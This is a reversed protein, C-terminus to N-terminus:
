DKVCRVSLGYHKVDDHNRNVGASDYYLGRTWVGSSGSGTASWFIAGYTFNAYSGYYDGAPLASFGSSNRGAASTNGAANATSSFTWGTNGSLQAAISGRFCDTNNADSQSMGVSMEMQKWEADSPVHWGTPCVGQVGSPNANSSSSSGMVAKWNYLLGYTSMNSSNNNPCYWYATTTSTSNGHLISTGNAYKTTRLNEKMWCQSGIQVTNYTNGDIDTLTSTGCTFSPASSTTFSVESGYATGASNTAYARVYYTTNPTLGTVSSTFSGTGSGNTTHSGSVTPNNSTSWCVGRATITAGGDSTVNGGCTATTTSISTVSNTTVTPVTQSSSGEDRVCRVSYGYEKGNYGRRVGANNYDLYRQWANTSSNETASWFSAYNGFNNYNGIYYGAPLASFGSSNREAASTNGAANANSSSTWGANGCLRAAIDGRYGTNDADSQSMGVEMEMQKWEADSPVHWGIPCIGQVGSPNASSSSSSGMVAKWNYLLGYTTNNSADDNPYYWYATTTSTETGQAILSNDAYKMTRLNEKMWCQNGILVTNYTNGDIDILTTSGPCPQGNQATEDKVCRVSFGRSKSDYLRTAGANGYYLSRRWADTSSGETASWFYACDGFGNYSGYYYGAPLASFGTANNDSPTNGVACTNTNSSWGTTDALAKAISANDSGCVYQSQSSVYDTLQTWEADSPVHWGIPCIGQVGSPNASSSSSSGMVAKWNYLLGYTSMNSSNNNPYYWYATTTSTNNGQSISTGNAYKTTRLNEKMWCQNGIQVTNYTNGDIDTLTSTGCTFSPASSTTFSVESGYATGASNTAYARVYYTTNPTLGTVSSTFSGTGSGNTTHSGSVTPNHVTSWCVGRATVTAGGDSTVNGGCTATATSISTVSNTTVIPITPSSNGEDYVCRISFAREKQTITILISSSVATIGSYYACCDDVDATASWFDNSYGFATYSSSNDEYNYYYSGAPLASFGTANNGDPSYGVSCLSSYYDNWGTSAALAKAITRTDTSDCVYSRQSRVYNILQIWEDRSPVHWGTPCDGQVGSPNASSSSSSGMVAKWNYLLGYTSMNSSNNNPYYWYATTTSTSNGHAISTGNAYKTTRLNEAMWCQSGIQVTNYTNGAIDTVTEYGPCPQADGVPLPPTIFSVENGYATGVSNTAYARVYYTTNPTLGTLIGRFNYTNITDTTHPNAITPNGTTNWCVGGVTVVAGGDSTVNGSGRAYTSGLVLVANTTVTPLQETYLEGAGLVCRVSMAYAYIDHNLSIVAGEENIYRNYGGSSWFGTENRFAYYGDISNRQAYYGAPLAGFGTANNTSLDSCVSCNYYSCTNWGTTAALAKAIYHNYSGCVYQSQSSVYDTLQTWEAHSPVHWGTPCIGQVGSPNASSYPARHMVATWNYLLGYTLKNGADDNPYYWYPTDSSPSNGQAVYTNDAYKTTRLNEAMWCQQGIQVTNYTNGDIDTVTEHGRCPQADGAPLTTFSVEEGYATGVSNTAYARVYYTTNPTLNTLNSTFSGTGSGNTTHNGSTTPNHNNSWCVGRDIVIADGDSTVIGGVTASNDSINTVPNTTVTPITHQVAAFVMAFTQSTGQSQTIRQSEMESDNITAYGVYEMQDGFTFPNNTTSKLVYTITQVMGLYDIGNANGGDHCVMKISSTKGNQRATMVYTGATSLSVRFQHTGIEPHVRHTGVTKGNGDAIELTVAGADAVTLNVDTTGTFPNPNNQSLAFGGNAVSEDIGTGNQMTLTTDPWYITEQWSKTLNTISMRNLQVYHDVADRGTFTLTVTQAFAVVGMLAVSIFCLIKKM